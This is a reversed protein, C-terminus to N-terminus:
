ETDAEMKGREWGEDRAFVLYRHQDGIRAMLAGARPDGKGFAVDMFQRLEESTLSARAWVGHIGSGSHESAEIWEYILETWSM